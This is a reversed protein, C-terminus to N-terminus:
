NYTSFQIEPQNIFLSIHRSSGAKEKIAKRTKMDCNM